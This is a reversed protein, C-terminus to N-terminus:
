QRRAWAHPARRLAARLSEFLSADAGEICLEEGKAGINHLLNEFAVLAADNSPPSEFVLRTTAGPQHRLTVVVDCPNIGYREILENVAGLLAVSVNDVSIGNYYNAVFLLM